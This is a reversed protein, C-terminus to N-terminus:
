EQSKVGGVGGVWGWGRWLFQRLRALTQLSDIFCLGLLLRVFSCIIRCSKCHEAYSALWLTLLHHTCLILVSCATGLTQFPYQQCSNSISFCLSSLIAQLVQFGQSELILFLLPRCLLACGKKSIWSWQAM